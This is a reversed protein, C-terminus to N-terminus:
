SLVWSKPRCGCAGADSDRERETVICVVCPCLSILLRCYIYTFLPFLLSVSVYQNSYTCFFHDSM